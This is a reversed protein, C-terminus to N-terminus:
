NVNCKDSTVPIKVTFKTGKGVQSEAALLGNHQQIIGYSVSLGLGTGKGKPKTTFFPEFMRDLVRASIGEGTDEIEVIVFEESEKTRITIRGKEKIAHCANILLNMFVQNIKGAYCRVVPLGSFEKVIEIRNKHEHLIINLTSEIANNIDLNEPEHSDLRSFSKLDAIIKKMRDLGIQSRELIEPIRTKMYSFKANDTIEKIESMVQNDANLEDLSDIIQIIKTTFKKLNAVNSYVFSLPNNIEHAIGAVMEGLSALKASQALQDELMRKERVILTNKITPLLIDDKWPKRLLKDVCGSNVAEVVGDIDDIATLLIKGIYPFKKEVRELLQLGNMGPMMYDSIIIDISQEEVIFLGEEANYATFVKFHKELNEKLAYIVSKSDDVILISNQKEGM